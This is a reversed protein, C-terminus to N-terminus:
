GEPVEAPQNNEVFHLPLSTWQGPLMEIAYSDGERRCGPFGDNEVYADLLSRPYWHAQTDIVKM